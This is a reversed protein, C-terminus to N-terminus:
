RAAEEEIYTQALDLLRSGDLGQETVATVWEDRVPQTAEVWRVSEEPTLEIMTNGTSAVQQRAEDALEDWVTGLQRAAEVGSNADIIAQLDEPLAAYADPNMALMLTATYLAPGEPSVETHFSVMEDIRLTPVSEMPLFLGDVVGRSVAEAVQTFPMAVPTGGFEEVMRNAMSTPARVKLGEFDELAQVPQNAHLSASALVHFALPRVGEFQDTCEERAYRDLAASTPGADHGVFPAEFIEVCAFRGPTYGPVVWAIDVVGNRVQDFLQEPSGGLQMSPFIQIDIRGGSQEEIQAAWPELMKVQTNSTSPTFHHLRLVVQEQAVASPAMAAMTLMAIAAMGGRMAESVKHKLM